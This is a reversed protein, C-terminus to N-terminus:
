IEICNISAYWRGKGLVVVRQGGRASREEGKGPRAEWDEETGEGLEKAGEGSRGDGV